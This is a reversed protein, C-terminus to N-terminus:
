DYYSDDDSSAHISNKYLDMQEKVDFHISTKNFVALYQMVDMDFDEVKESDLM